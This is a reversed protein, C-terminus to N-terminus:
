AIYGGPPEELKSSKSTVFDDESDGETGDSLQGLGLTLDQLIAQSFGAFWRRITRVSKKRQLQFM